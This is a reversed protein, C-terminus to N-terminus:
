VPWLIFSGVDAGYVQFEWRGRRTVLFDAVARKVGNQGPLNLEYDHGVVIGDRAMKPEWLVLDRMVSEYDHGADVYLLSVIGDAFRGAAAATDMHIFNCKGDIPFSRDVKDISVFRGCAAALARASRGRPGTGLEVILGKRAQVTALAFLLALHPARTWEGARDSRILEAIDM